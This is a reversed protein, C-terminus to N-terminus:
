VMNIVNISFNIYIYLMKYDNSLAIVIIHFIEINILDSSKKKQFKYKERDCNM